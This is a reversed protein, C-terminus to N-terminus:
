HILWVGLMFEGSLYVLYGILTIHYDEEWAAVVVAVQALVGVELCKWASLVRVM